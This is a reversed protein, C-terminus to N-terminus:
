NLLQSVRARPNGGTPINADTAYQEWDIKDPRKGISLEMQAIQANNAAAIKAVAKPDKFVENMVGWGCNQWANPDRTNVNRHTRSLGSNEGVRKRAEGITIGDKTNGSGPQQFWESGGTFVSGCGGM